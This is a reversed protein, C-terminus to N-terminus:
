ESPQTSETGSGSSRLFDPLAASRVWVEPDTALVVLGSLRDMRPHIIILILKLSVPRPTHFRILPTRHIARTFVIILGEPEM